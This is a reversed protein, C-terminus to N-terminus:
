GLKISKLATHCSRGIRFGHSTDQFVNEKHEYIHELITRIGEQVIKDRLNGVILKRKGGSKKFVPVIRSPKFKYSGM